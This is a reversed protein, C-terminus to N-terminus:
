ALRGTVKGSALIFKDFQVKLAAVLAPASAVNGSWTGDTSLFSGDPNVTLELADMNEAFPTGTGRKIVAYMAGTLLDITVSTICLTDTTATESVGPGTKQVTTIFPADLKVM